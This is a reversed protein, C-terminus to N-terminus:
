ASAEHVTAETDALELEFGDLLIPRTGCLGFIEAAYSRKAACCRIRIFFVNWREWVCGIKEFFVEHEM